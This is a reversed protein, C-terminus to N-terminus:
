RATRFRTWTRTRLRVYADSKATEPFLSAARAADPYAQANRLEPRLQPQAAQNGNPFGITNSNTAAVGEELLFDLFQHAERPHAADALIAAVDFWLVAGERPSTFGIERPKGVARARERAQLADGNSAIVLCLEGTALDQVLSDVTIKRIYPRIALLAAEARALLAPDESNPDEGLWALVSPIIVGPSEYLGIGCDAFRAAIKPNLLLSWSDFPADPLRARLKGTDYALGTIGWTYILAHANGPDYGALKQMLAPDLNARHSLQGTDLPAFVGTRALRQLYAASPFVVDYGSHGALLKAELTDNSDFVNYGVRIGTRAEFDRLVQPDLYDYWNYVQVVRQEPAGRGCASLLLAAALALVILGPPMRTACPM